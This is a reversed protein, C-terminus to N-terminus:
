GPPGLVSVSMACRGRPTDQRMRRADCAGVTRSTAIALSRGASRVLESGAAPLVPALEPHDVISVEVGEFPPFGDVFEGVYGSVQVTAVEDPPDDTPDDPMDGPDNEVGGTDDDAPELEGDCAATFM